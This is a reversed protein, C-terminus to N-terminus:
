REGKENKAATKTKSNKKGKVQKDFAEEEEMKKNLSIAIGKRM